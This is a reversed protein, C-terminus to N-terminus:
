CVYMFIVHIHEITVRQIFYSFAKSLARTRFESFVSFRTVCFKVLIFSVTM